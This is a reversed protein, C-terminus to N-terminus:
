LGDEEMAKFVGELFKRRNAIVMDVTESVSKNESYAKFFFKYQMSVDSVMGVIRDDIVKGGIIENMVMMFDDTLSNMYNGLEEVTTIKSLNSLDEEALKRMKEIM